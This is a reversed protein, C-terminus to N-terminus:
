CPGINRPWIATVSVQSVYPVPVCVVARLPTEQIVFGQSFVIAM